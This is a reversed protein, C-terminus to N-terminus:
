TPTLISILKFLPLMLLPLKVKRLLGRLISRGSDPTVTGCSLVEGHWLLSEVLLAM